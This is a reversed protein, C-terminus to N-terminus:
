YPTWWCLKIYSFFFSNLWCVRIKSSILAQNNFATWQLILSFHEKLFFLWKQHTNQFIYILYARGVGGSPYQKRTNLYLLIIWKHLVIIWCNKCSFWETLATNRVSKNIRVFFYGFSQGAQASKLCKTPVPANHCELCDIVWAVWSVTISSASLSSPFELYKPVQPVKNLLSGPVRNVPM